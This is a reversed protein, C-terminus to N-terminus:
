SQGRREYTKPRIGQVQTEWYQDTRLHGTAVALAVQSSGRLTAVALEATVMM